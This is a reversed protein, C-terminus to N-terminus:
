PRRSSCNKGCLPRSLCVREYMRRGDVSLNRNVSRNSRDGFLLKQLVSFESCRAENERTQNALISKSRKCIDRIRSTSINEDRTVAPAKRFLLFFEGDVTIISATMVVDDVIIWNEIDTKTNFDFIIHSAMSTFIIILCILCKM